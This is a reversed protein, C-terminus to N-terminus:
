TMRRIKDIYKNEGQKEKESDIKNKMIEVEKDDMSEIHEDLDYDEDYNKLSNKNILGSKKMENMDENLM